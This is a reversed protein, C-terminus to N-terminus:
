QGTKSQKCYTLTYITSHGFSLHDFVPCYFSFSIISVTLSLLCAKIGCATQHKSGWHATCQKWLSPLFQLKVQSFHCRTARGKNGKGGQGRGEEEQRGGERERRGEEEQGRGGQLEIENDLSSGSSRSAICLTDGSM